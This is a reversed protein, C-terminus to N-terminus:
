GKGFLVKRLDDKRNREEDTVRTVGAGGNAIALKNGFSVNRINDKKSAEDDAKRM